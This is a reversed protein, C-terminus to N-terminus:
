CCNHGEPFTIGVHVFRKGIQPEYLDGCCKGTNLEAFAKRNECLFRSLLTAYRDATANYRQQVKLIDRLAQENLNADSPHVVGMNRTPYSGPLIIVAQVKAQLYPIIYGDLLDKYPANDEDDITDETGEIANFVLELVRNYLRTGIITQLWVEQTERIAPALTADDVNYNIYTASKVDDPAILMVDKYTM